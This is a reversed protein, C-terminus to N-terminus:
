NIFKNLGISLTLILQFQRQPGENFKQFVEYVQDVVKYIIRASDGKSNEADFIIEKNKQKLACKWGFATFVRKADDLVSVGGPDQILCDWIETISRNRFSPANMIAEVVPTDCGLGIHLYKVLWRQNNETKPSSFLNGM